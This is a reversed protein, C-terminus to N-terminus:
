APGGLRALEEHMAEVIAGRRWVRHMSHDIDPVQLWGITGGAQARRWRRGLRSDLYELGDDGEAFLMLVPVRSRSLDDLWRAAWPRHGLADLASWLGCRAGQEIRRREDTRRQRTETMLAEVPDGPRWYLQPNLALVGAAPEQLVARLAVWAGACLGALVVREHGQARLARVVAIADEVCHADYPRGPAHGDDPSEGWGRFDVRLCPHGLVALARAYEVWARGPGVHVESGSNLFVVTARGAPTGTPETLVGVLRRAGVEVVTEAITAGGWTLETAARAPPAPRRPSDDAGVWDAIAGVIAEPVVADETPAELALEGGALDAHEANCGLGRLHEAVAADGVVLARAPAATAKTVALASLDALTEAGFVTGATVVTGGGAPDHAEPVATSLLRIEKAYRRGSAVPAWAVVAEAGLEAGDLLALTAGLRAGAVVLRECGIARLEDAGARAGARWAAVRGPDWQDGASDGTGDHDLRLVAHGAAALREAIVRLTRHASWYQYGVPPLILVGSAGPGSEPLTLWGLLPREPPGIWRGTTRAQTAREAQIMRPWVTAAAPKRAAASPECKRGWGTGLEVRWGM